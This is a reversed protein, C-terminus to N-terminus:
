KRSRKSKTKRSRKSKTKRSRKSKTKRSKRSRTKRSRRKIGQARGTHSEIYQIVTNRYSDPGFGSPNESLNEVATEIDDDSNESADYGAAILANILEENTYDHLSRM